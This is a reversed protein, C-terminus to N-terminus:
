DACRGKADCIERRKKGPGNRFVVFQFRGESCGSNKQVFNWKEVQFNEESVHPDRCEFIGDQYQIKDGCGYYTFHRWGPYKKPLQVANLRIYLNKERGHVSFPNQVRVNVIETRKQRYAWNVILKGDFYFRKFQVKKRDAKENEQVYFDPSLLPYAGSAGWTNPNIEKINCHTLGYGNKHTFNCINEIGSKINTFSNIIRCDFKQAMMPLLDIIGYEYQIWGASLKLNVAKYPERAIRVRLSGALIENGTIDFTRRGRNIDSLSLEGNKMNWYFIKNDGELFVTPNKMDRSSFFLDDFLIHNEEEAHKDASRYRDLNEDLFKSLKSQYDDPESIFELDTTSSGFGVPFATLRGSFLLDATGDDRQIGIKVYKKEMIRKANANGISIKAAAFGCEKQFIELSIIEEDGRWNNKEENFSSSWDFILKM